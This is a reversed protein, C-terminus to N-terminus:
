RLHADAHFFCSRLRRAVPKPLLPDTQILPPDPGHSVQLQIADMQAAPTANIGDGSRQFAYGTGCELAVHLFSGHGEGGLIICRGLLGEIGDRSGAQVAFGAVFSQFHLGLM